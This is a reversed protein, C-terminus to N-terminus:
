KRFLEFIAPCIKEPVFESFIEKAKLGDTKITEPNNYYNLIAYAMAEADLYPILKGGGTALVEATGNGQNFCIVPKGLMGAEICVLPFPDERSTLLFVDFNRFYSHPVNTAGEFIVQETLGAKQLDARILEENSDASFAGVWRFKVKADPAKSKVHFAVQIFIDSGKRFQVSGAGGVEFWNKSSNSSSKHEIQEATSFEYVVKIKKEPIYRNDVLNQKVAKSVAIYQDVVDVYRHFEPLAMDIMTDLEHIHAILQAKNRSQNKIMAAFPLSLVTNAYIIDYNGAAIKSIFQKQFHYEPSASPDVIKNVRYFYYPISKKFKNSSEIFDFTTNAVNRFDEVLEGDKILLVDANIEPHHTKMWKLFYYLVFPAGTRSAEHSIFLIKKM